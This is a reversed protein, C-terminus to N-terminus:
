PDGCLIQGQRAGYPRRHHGQRYAEDKGATKGMDDSTATTDLIDDAAQYMLGLLQGFSRLTDIEEPKVEAMLGALSAPLNM